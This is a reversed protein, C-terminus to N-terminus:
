IGQSGLLRQTDTAVEVTGIHERGISKGVAIRARQKASGSEQMRIQKFGM